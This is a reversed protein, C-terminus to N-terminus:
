AYLNRPETKRRESRVRAATCWQSTTVSFPVKADILRCDRVTQSADAAEAVEEQKTYRKGESSTGRFDDV